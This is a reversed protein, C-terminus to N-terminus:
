KLLVLRISKAYQPTVMRAVYIGAPVSRGEQDKSNWVVQHSGPEMMGELLTAVQQGLLDYIVVHIDTAQPLEFRITTAPNFPNPYNSLLATESPYASGGDTKLVATEIQFVGTMSLHFECNYYLEDPANMPVTFIVDGVATGNGTVGSSYPNGTGMSQTTKIWFPHGPTSIQFTYTVGRYLTLTPNSVGGITYASFDINSVQFSSQGQAALMSVTLLSIWVIGIVRKGIM